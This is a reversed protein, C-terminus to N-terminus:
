GTGTLARPRSGTGAKGRLDLSIAAMLWGDVSGLLHGAPSGAPRRRGQLGKRHPCSPMSEGLASASALTSMALRQQPFSILQYSVLCCLQLEPSQEGLCGGLLCASLSKGGPVWGFPLCEPSQGGLRGGLTPPHWFALDSHALACV